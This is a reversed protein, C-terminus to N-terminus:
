GLVFPRIEGQTFRNLWRVITTFDLMKWRLSTNKLTTFSEQQMPHRWKGIVITKGRESTFDSNTDAMRRWEMPTWPNTEYRLHWVQFRGLSCIETAPCVTSEDLSKFVKENKKAWDKSIRKIRQSKRRYNPSKNQSQGESVGWSYIWWKNDGHAKVWLWCRRHLWMRPMFLCQLLDFCWLWCM